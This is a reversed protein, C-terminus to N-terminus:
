LSLDASRRYPIKQFLKMQQHALGGMYDRGRCPGISLIAGINQYTSFDQAYFFLWIVLFTLWAIAAVGRLVSRVRPRAPPNYPWAQNPPGYVHAYRLGWTAWILAMSGIMFLTSVLFVAINQALSYGSAYFFLWIVLFILWGFFIVISSAVRLRFGRVHVPGEDNERMTGKGLGYRAVLPILIELSGQGVTGNLSHREPEM